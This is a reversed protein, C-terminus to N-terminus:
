GNPASGNVYSAIGEAVDIVERTTFPFARSSLVKIAADVSELRLTRARKAEDEASIADHILGGNALRDIEERTALLIGDADEEPVERYAEEFVEKPSWSVYGDAYKVAYGEVSGREEVPKTPDDARAEPWAQVIKAGIYTKTM